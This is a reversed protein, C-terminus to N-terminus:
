QQKARPIPDPEKSAPLLLSNPKDSLQRTLSKTNNLTSDLSRLSTNLNKYLEANRSFGDLVFRMRQLTATLEGSLAKTDTGKIMTDASALTAKLSLLADDATAMARTANAVTEELPLANLKKLLASAQTQLLEVGTEVTPITSYKEFSGLEAPEADPFYDVGILKQGTLLNGTQLTARMGNRVGTEIGARIAAISEETDPVQM